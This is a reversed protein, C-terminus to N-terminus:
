SFGGFHVVAFNYLGESLPAVGCLLARREFM